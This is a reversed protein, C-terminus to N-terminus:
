GGGGELDILDHSLEDTGHFVAMASADEMPVELRFM